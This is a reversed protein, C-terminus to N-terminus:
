GNVEQGCHIINVVAVLALNINSCQLAKAGRMNLNVSNCRVEVVNYLDLALTLIERESVM